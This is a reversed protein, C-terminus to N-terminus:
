NEEMMKIKFINDNVIVDNWTRKINPNLVDNYGIRMQKAVINFSIRGTLAGFAPIIISKINNDLARKLTSKMCHYVINYQNSIDCPVRMTPTHILYPINKHYTELIFSTGVPQEGYYETGIYDQVRKVCDEGLYKSLILDYGGDMIGYSNAPSVLCDVKNNKLYTLLDQNVISVSIIDKFQKYWENTMYPNIDLLIVKINNLNM